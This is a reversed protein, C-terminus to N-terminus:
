DHEIDGESPNISYVWFDEWDLLEDVGLDKLSEGFKKNNMSGNHSFKITGSNTKYGTFRAWIDFTVKSTNKGITLQVNDTEIDDCDISDLIQEVIADGIRYIKDEEYNPTNHGINIVFTNDYTVVKSVYKM